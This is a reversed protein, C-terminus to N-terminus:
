QTGSQRGETTIAYRVFLSSPTLLRHEVLQLSTLPISANFLPIGKAFVVPNITIWIENVLNTSLFLSYIQSGGAICVTSFNRKELSSIIEQPTNHTFEVIGPQSHQSHRSMVITLRDVLPGKLTKYTTNGMVVVGAEKTIDAFLRRDETSTWNIKDQEDQAIYGNASTAVILIIKM